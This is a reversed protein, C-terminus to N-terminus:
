SRAGLLTGIWRVASVLQSTWDNFTRSHREVMNLVGEIQLTPVGDGEDITFLEGVRISALAPELELVGFQSDSWVIDGIHVFRFADVHHGDRRRDVSSRIRLRPGGEQARRRGEVCRESERRIQSVKHRHRRGRRRVRVTPNPRWSCVQNLVRFNHLALAQVEGAQNGRGVADLKAVTSAMDFAGAYRCTWHQFTATSVGTSMARSAFRSSQLSPLVVQTDPLAKGGEGDGGAFISVLQADISERNREM